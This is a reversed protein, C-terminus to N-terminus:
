KQLVVQKTVILDGIQARVIYHGSTLNDARWNYTHQGPQTEKEAIVEILRGLPDFIEIRVFSQRVLSIGISTVNNFPNPSVTVLGHILPQNVNDPGISLPVYFNRFVSSADVIFVGDTVQVTWSFEGGVDTNLEERLLSIPFTPESIGSFPITDENVYFLLTYFLDDGDVDEAIAWRFSSDPMDWLITQDNEPYLLDFSGPPHIRPPIHNTYTSSANVTFEGDTAEVTWSVDGEEAIDILQNVIWIPFSTETIGSSDLLREGARLMLTYLVEDGDVDESEQWVFMTDQSNWQVEEGDAPSILDFAAPADAIPEVIVVFTDALTEEGNSANVISESLGFWDRQPTIFFEGNREIRSNLGPTIAEYVVGRSSSKFVTDLDAVLFEESDEEINWDPIPSDVVFVPLVDCVIRFGLERPDWANSISFINAGNADVSEASFTFTVRQARGPDVNFSAPEITWFGNDSVIEEVVLQEGGRGGNNRNQINLNFSYEEGWYMEGFIWNMNIGWWGGWPNNNVQPWSTEIIPYPAIHGAIPVIYEERTPDNSTFFLDVFQHPNQEDFMNGKQVCVFWQARGVGVVGELETVEEVEEEEGPIFYVRVWEQDAPQVVVRWELPMNAGHGESNDIRLTDRSWRDIIRGQWEIPDRTDLRREIDRPHVDFDPRALLAPALLIITLVTVKIYKWIVQKGVM